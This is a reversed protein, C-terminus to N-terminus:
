GSVCGMLASVKSGPFRGRGGRRVGSLRNESHPIASRRTRPETGDAPFSHRNM